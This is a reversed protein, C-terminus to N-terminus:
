LSTLISLSLPLFGCRVQASLVKKDSSSISDSDVQDQLVTIMETRVGDAYDSNGSILVHLVLHPLLHHAVVVDKSRVSSRFVSFVKQAMGESAKFILDTAWVQIWERYTSQTPYIPLQRESSTKESLVYKSELLPTVTELVRKPLSAWLRRTKVSVSTGRDSVVAPTFRCFKLLEQISFALHNQYKIDSTSRFAGVLLDRILHLAFVIAEEEDTFNKLIIHNTSRPEVECRDPDIAGLIGLCEFALQKTCDDDDGSERCVASLVCSIMDGVIPDFIDGSTIEQLFLRNPPSLLFAKLQHLAQGVVTFNDSATQDLIRQLEEKPSTAGRLRRLQDSLPRLEKIVSLDAVDCLYRQIHEDDASVMFDLVQYATDRAVPSLTKWAAVIAASTPGIHPGVESAALTTLFKYWTAITVGSLESVSIM